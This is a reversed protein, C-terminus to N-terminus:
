NRTIVNDPSNGLKYAGEKGSKAPTGGGRGGTFSSTAKCYRRPTYSMKRENGELNEKVKVMKVITHRPTPRPNM